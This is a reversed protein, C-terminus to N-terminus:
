RKDGFLCGHKLYIFCLLALCLLTARGVLVVAIILNPESNTLFFARCVNMADLRKRRELILLIIIIVIITLRGM